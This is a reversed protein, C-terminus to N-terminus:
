WFPLSDRLVIIACLSSFRPVRIFDFITLYFDRYFLSYVKILDNIVELM